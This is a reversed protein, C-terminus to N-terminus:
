PAETISPRRSAEIKGKLTQDTQLETMVLPDEIPDSFLEALITEM